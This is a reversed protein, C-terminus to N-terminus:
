KPINLRYETRSKQFGPTLFEDAPSLELPAAERSSTRVAVAAAHRTFLDLDAVQWDATPAAPRPDLTDGLGVNPWVFGGALGSGFAKSCAEKRVWCQRLAAQRASDPLAGLARQEDPHLRRVLGNALFPERASEIDVGVPQTSVAYVVLDDAYSMSFHPLLVSPDISWKAVPRGHLEACRPCRDRQLLLETQPIGALHGLLLRLAIHAVRFRRAAGAHAFNQARHREDISLLASQRLMIESVSSVRLHAIQVVISVQARTM